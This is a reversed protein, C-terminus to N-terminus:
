TFLVLFTFFNGNILDLHSNDFSPNTENGWTNQQSSTSHTFANEKILIDRKLENIIDYESENEIYVDTQSVLEINEPQKKQKEAVRFVDSLHDEPPIYLKEKNNKNKMKKVAKTEKKSNLNKKVSKNKMKNLKKKNLELFNKKPKSPNKSHKKSQVKLESKSRSKEPIKGLCNNIASGFDSAKNEDKCSENRSQIFEYLNMQSPNNPAKKIFNKLPSKNLNFPDKASTGGSPRHTDLKNNM